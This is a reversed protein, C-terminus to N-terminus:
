KETYKLLRDFTGSYDNTSYFGALTAKYNRVTQNLYNAWCGESDIWDGDKLYWWDGPTQYEAGDIFIELNQPSKGKEVDAKVLDNAISKQNPIITGAEALIKQGEETTAFKTFLYAANKISSNSWVCWANSGSHAGKVGEVTVNNNEDFEKYVLMPAVDWTGDDMADRFDQVCSRVDVLMAVHKNSFYGARGDTTFTAPNPSIGKNMIKVQSTGYKESDTPSYTTVENKMIQNNKEIGSEKGGNLKYPILEWFIDTVGKESAYYHNAKEGSTLGSLSMYESFARRQSPLVFCKNALDDTLFFKDEYSIMENANYSNNNVIINEKTKYNITADALTFTYYGGNFKADSSDLYEICDGGVSYGYNFWWSTLFGDQCGAKKNLPNNQLKTALESCEQWSMEIKNNFYYSGDSYLFYAKKPYSTNNKTNYTDIDKEYISIEKIKANALFTKNYYIATSGTGKPIGYYHAGEGTSTTTIPDYKYRGVGGEFMDNIQTQMNLEKYQSNIYPDLNEMFGLTVFQKYYEDSALFVDPGKGKKSALTTKMKQEWGSAAYPVFKASINYAKYKENFADVLSEMRSREDGDCYGWVKINTGEKSVMLNGNEDFSIDEGSVTSNCGVLATLAVLMSVLLGQKKM